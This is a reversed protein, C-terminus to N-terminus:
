RDARSEGASDSHRAVRANAERAGCRVGRPDGGQIPGLSSGIALVAAGAGQPEVRGSETLLLMNSMRSAIKLTATGSV